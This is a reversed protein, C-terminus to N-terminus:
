KGQTFLLDSHIPHGQALRKLNKLPLIFPTSPLLSPPVTPSKVVGCCKSLLPLVQPLM